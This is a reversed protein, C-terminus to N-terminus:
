GHVHSACSSAGTPWPQRIQVPGATGAPLLGAEQRSVVSMGTPASQIWGNSKPCLSSKSTHGGPEAYDPPTFTKNNNLLCASGVVLRLDCTVHCTQGPLARLQVPPLELSLRVVPQLFVDGVLCCAQLSLGSRAPKRKKPNQCSGARTM